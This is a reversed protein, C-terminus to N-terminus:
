LRRLFDSDFANNLDAVEADEGAVFLIDHDRFVKYGPGCCFGM